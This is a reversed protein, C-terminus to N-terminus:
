QQRSPAVRKINAPEDPWKIPVCDASGFATNPYENRGRISSANSRALRFNSAPSESSLMFSHILLLFGLTCPCSDSSSYLDQYKIFKSSYIASTTELRRLPRALAHPSIINSVQSLKSPGSVFTSNKAFRSKWTSSGGRPSVSLTRNAGGNNTDLRCKERPYRM